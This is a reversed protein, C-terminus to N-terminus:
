PSVELKDPPNLTKLYAFLDIFEVDTLNNLLGEPMM